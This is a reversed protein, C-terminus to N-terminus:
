DTRRRQRHSVIRLIQALNDASILARDGIGVAAELANDGLVHAVPHQDM